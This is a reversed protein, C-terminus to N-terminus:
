QQQTDQGHPLRTGMLACQKGDMLLFSSRIGAMQSGRKIGNRPLCGVGDHERDLAEVARLFHVVNGVAGMVEAAFAHSDMQTAQLLNGQMLQSGGIEHPKRKVQSSQSLLNLIRSLGYQAAALHHVLLGEVYEEVLHVLHGARGVINGPGNLIIYLERAQGALDQVAM